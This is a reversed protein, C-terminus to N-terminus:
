VRLHPYHTIDINIIHAGEIIEVALFLATCIEIIHGRNIRIACIDYLEEEDIDYVFYTSMIWQMYKEYMYTPILFLNCMIIPHSIIDEITYKKAFFTNYSELLTGWKSLPKVLLQLSGDLRLLSSSEAYYSVFIMPSDPSTEINNRIEDMVADCITMDYQMFGIYRSKKYLSNIYVHYFASAENYRHEQLRKNYVPLEYEYISEIQPPTEVKDKVGYFTICKRNNEEINEYLYNYLTKHYVIYLTFM